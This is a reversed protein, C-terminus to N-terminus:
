MGQIQDGMLTIQLKNLHTYLEPDKPMPLRKARLAAKAAENCLNKSGSIHYSHMVLGDRSLNVGLKCEGYRVGRKLRLYSYLKEAIRQQYVLLPDLFLGVTEEEVVDNDSVADSETVVEDPNDEDRVQEGLDDGSDVYENLRDPKFEVEDFDEINTPKLETKEADSIATMAESILKQFRESAVKKENKESHGNEADPVPKNEVKPTEPSKKDTLSGLPITVTKPPSYLTANITKFVPANDSTTHADDTTGSMSLVVFLVIHFLVSVFVAQRWASGNRDRIQTRDEAPASLPPLDAM